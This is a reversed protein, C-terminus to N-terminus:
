ERLASSFAHKCAEYCECASDNLLKQNKVTVAGRRYSIAGMRQLAEAAESVGSRRVGLMIAMLDHTLIFETGGVRDATMSLWRACREQVSHKVNCAAFQQASFLSARVNRRMLQAFTQSTAMRSTFRAMSMQGVMGRVQCFSTRNALSSHLAADTEVFGESGVTGVEVTDGNTLTAVVSLVADIPFNVHGLFAGVEHTVQHAAFNVVELDAILDIRDGAPLADLVRNGSTYAGAPRRLNLM